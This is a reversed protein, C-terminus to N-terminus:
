EVKPAERYNPKNVQGLDFGLIAASHHAGVRENALGDRV